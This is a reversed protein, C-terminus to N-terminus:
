NLTQCIERENTVDIIVQISHKSCGAPLSDRIVFGKVGSLMLPIIVRLNPILRDDNLLDQWKVWNVPETEGAMTKPEFPMNIDEAYCCYIRNNNDEICGMVVMKNSTLGAEEELERIAADLPSEHEEIKGGVLNIKGALYAPRDKLITLVYGFAECLVVVYDM